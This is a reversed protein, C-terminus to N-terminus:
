AAKRGETLAMIGATIIDRIAESEKQGRYEATMKIQELTEPDLRLGIRSTKKVKM